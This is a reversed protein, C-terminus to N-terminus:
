ESKKTWQAIFNVKHEGDDKMKWGSFNYAKAEPEKVCKLFIDKNQSPEKCIYSYMCTGLKDENDNIEDSSFMEGLIGTYFEAVKFKEGLEDLLLKEMCNSYNILVMDKADNFAGKTVETVKVPDGDINIVPLIRVCEENPVKYVSLDGSKNKKYQVGNITAIGNKDLSTAKLYDLTYDQNITKGLYNIEITFTVTSNKNVFNSVKIKAGPKNGLYQEISESTTKETASYKEIMENVEYYFDEIQSRVSSRHETISASKKGDEDEVIVEFYYDKDPASTNTDKKITKVSDDIKTESQYTSGGTSEEAFVATNFNNGLMATVQLATTAVVAIAISKKTIKKNM